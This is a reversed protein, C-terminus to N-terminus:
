PARIGFRKLEKVRITQMSTQATTAAAETTAEETMPAETAAAEETTADAPIVDATTNDAGAAATTDAAATTEPEPTKGCSAFVATVTLVSLVLALIRTMKM